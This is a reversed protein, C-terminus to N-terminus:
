LTATDANPPYPPYAYTAALGAGVPVVAVTMKEWACVSAAPVETVTFKSVFGVVVAASAHSRPNRVIEFRTDVLRVVPVNEAVLGTGCVTDAPVM